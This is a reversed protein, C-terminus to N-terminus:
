ERKLFIHRWMLHTRHVVYIGCSSGCRGPLYQHMHNIFNIYKELYIHCKFTYKGNDECGCLFDWWSNKLTSQRTLLNTTGESEVLEEGERVEEVSGDLDVEGGVRGDCGSQDAGLAPAINISLQQKGSPIAVIFATRVTLGGREGGVEWGARGLSALVLRLCTEPM